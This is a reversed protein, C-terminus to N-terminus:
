GTAGRKGETQRSRPGVVQVMCAQPQVDKGGKRSRKVQPDESPAWPPPVSPGVGKQSLM